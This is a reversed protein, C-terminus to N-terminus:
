WSLAASRILMKVVPVIVPFYVVTQARAVNIVFYLVTEIESIKTDFDFSSSM